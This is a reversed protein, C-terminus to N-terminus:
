FTFGIYVIKNAKIWRTSNVDDYKYCEYAKLGRDYDGRVYVTGNPNNNLKIFDGKKVKKLYEPKHEEDAYPANKLKQDVVEEKKKEEKGNLKDREAKNQAIQKEKLDDNDSITKNIKGQVGTKNSISHKALEQETNNFSEGDKSSWRNDSGLTFSKYEGTSKGTIASFQEIEIKDGPKMKTTNVINNQRSKERDKVGQLPDKGENKLKISESHKENMAKFAADRVKKKDLGHKEAFKDAEDYLEKNAVGGEKTWIKKVHEDAMKQIESHQHLKSHNAAGYKTEIGQKIRRDEENWRADIKEYKTLARHEQDFKKREQAKKYAEQLAKPGGISGDKFIPVRAGNVTVWREIEREEKNAM